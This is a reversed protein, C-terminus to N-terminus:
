KGTDGVNQATVSGTRMNLFMFEHSGTAFGGRPAWPAGSVRIQESFLTRQLRRSKGFAKYTKIRIARALRAFRQRSGIVRADNELDVRHFQRGNAM